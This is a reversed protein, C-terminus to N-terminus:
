RGPSSSSRRATRGLDRGDIAGARDQRLRRGASGRGDAPRPDDGRHGDGDSQSVDPQDPQPVGRGALDDPLDVAARGGGLRRAQGGDILEPFHRHCNNFGSYTDAIGISRGRWCIPRIAWRARSRAACISRSIASRRLQHTRPILGALRRGTGDHHGRPQLSGGAQRGRAAAPLRRLARRNAIALEFEAEVWMPRESYGVVIAPSAGLPGNVAFVLWRRPRTSLAMPISGCVWMERWTLPGECIPPSSRM